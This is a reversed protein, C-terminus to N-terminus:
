DCTGALNYDMSSGLLCGNVHYIDLREKSVIQGERLLYIKQGSGMHLVLLHSTSTSISKYRDPNPMLCTKKTGM